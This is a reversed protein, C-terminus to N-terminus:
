LFPLLASPKPNRAVASGSKREEQQDDPGKELRGLLDSVADLSGQRDGGSAISDQETAAFGKSLDFTVPM